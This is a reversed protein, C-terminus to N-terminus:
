APVADIGEEDLVLRCANEAETGLDIAIRLEEAVLLLANEIAAPEVGPMLALKRIGAIVQRPPDAASRQQDHAAGVVTNAEKVVAAPM